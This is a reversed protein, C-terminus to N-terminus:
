RREGVLIPENASAALARGVERAQHRGPPQESMEASSRGIRLSPYPPIGLMFEELSSSILPSIQVLYNTGTPKDTPKNTGPLKQGNYAHEM